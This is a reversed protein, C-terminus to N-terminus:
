EKWSFLVSAPHALHNWGLRLGLLLRAGQQLRGPASQYADGRTNGRNALAMGELPAKRDVAERSAADTTM